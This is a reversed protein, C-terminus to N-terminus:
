KSEKDAACKAKRALRKLLASVTYSSKVAPNITAKLEPTHFGGIFVAVLGDPTEALWREFPHGSRKSPMTHRMGLCGLIPCVKGYKARLTTRLLADVQERDVKCKVSSAEPLVSKVANPKKVAPKKGAHAAKTAKRDVESKATPQTAQRRLFHVAGIRNLKREEMVKAIEADTPYSKAAELTKSEM